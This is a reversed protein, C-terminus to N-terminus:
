RGKLGVAAFAEDRGAYDAIEVIRGDRVAVVQFIRWGWWAAGLRNMRRGMVSVVVRDGVDVFETARLRHVAGVWLLAKVVAESGRQEKGDTGRWVVDSDVFEFLLRPDGRRILGYADRVRAVTEQSV